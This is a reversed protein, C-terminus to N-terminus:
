ALEFLSRVWEKQFCEEIAPTSYALEAEAGDFDLAAPAIGGGRKLARASLSEKSVFRDLSTRLYTRFTGKGPDFDRFFAKDLARTFFGQVLDKADENSMKWRLRLHKYSPKWYATIIREYALARVAGEPSGLGAIVSRRTQPFRFCPGGISTDVTM